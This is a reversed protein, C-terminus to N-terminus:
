FIYIVFSSNAFSTLPLVCWALIVAPVRASSLERTLWAM